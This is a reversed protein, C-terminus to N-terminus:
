LIKTYKAKNKGLLYDVDFHWQCLFLYIEQNLKPSLHHSYLEFDYDYGLIEIIRQAPIFRENNHTIECLIDEIPRLLLKTELITTDFYNPKDNNSGIPNDKDFFLLHGDSNITVGGLTYQREYVEFVVNTGIYPRIMDLTWM